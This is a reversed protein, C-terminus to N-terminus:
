EEKAQRERAAGGGGAAGQVVHASTLPALVALWRAFEGHPDDMEECRPCRGPGIWRHQSPLYCIPICM